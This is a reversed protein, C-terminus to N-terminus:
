ACLARLMGDNVTVKARGLKKSGVVDASLEMLNNLRLWEDDESLQEVAKRATEVDLTELTAPDFVIEHGAQELTTQILEKIGENWENSYADKLNEALADDLGILGLSRIATKRWNEEDSHLQEHLLPLVDYGQTHAQLLLNSASEPAGLIEM